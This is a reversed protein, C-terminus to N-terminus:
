QDDTASKSVIGLRLGIIGFIQNMTKVTGLSAGSEIDQVTRYGLKALKAIDATTLRMVKKIHLISERLSWQPNALVDAYAKERMQIQEQISVANYRKDM